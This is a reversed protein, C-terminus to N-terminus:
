GQASLRGFLNQLEPRIRELEALHFASLDTLCREGAATLHVLVRRRDAPDLTRVVLGAAELRDILEVTSNHRLVLYDAIHSLGATGSVPAAKIGLLAQHQRPTLGAARVAAASYSRFGRLAFRFAALTQYDDHSIKRNQM